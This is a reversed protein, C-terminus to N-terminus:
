EPPRMSGVVTAIISECDATSFLFGPDTCVCLYMTTKSCNPDHRHLIRRAFQSQPVICNPPPSHHHYLPFAPHPFHNPPHHLWPHTVAHRSRHLQAPRSADPTTWKKESKSVIKKGVMVVSRSELATKYSRPACAGVWVWVCDCCVCM